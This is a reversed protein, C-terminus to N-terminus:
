SKKTWRCTLELLSVIEVHSPGGLKIDISKKYNRGHAPVHRSFTYTHPFLDILIM